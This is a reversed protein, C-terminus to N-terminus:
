PRRLLKVLYPYDPVCDAQLTEAYELTRMVPRPCGSPVWTSPEVSKMAVTKETDDEHEWPLMGVFIDIFTYCLGILDDCFGPPNRRMASASSHIRNGVMSELRQGSKGRGIRKALGFDILCLDKRDPSSYVLNGPKIDRHAVGVEHCGRVCVLASEFLSVVRTSPASREREMADGLLDMVLYGTGEVVGFWRLDPISLVHRLGRLMNAEHKLVQFAIATDADASASKIAVMEGSRLNRGLSVSGFSGSGLLRGSEYIGIRM